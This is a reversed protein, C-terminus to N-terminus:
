KGTRVLRFGLYRANSHPKAFARNTVRMESSPHYWSGGRIVRDTGSDPGGFFTSQKWSYRAYWDWCWEYVNGSMDSLGWKNAPKQGVPHVDGDSNGNYWGVADPTNSGAFLFFEGKSSAKAAYEWEAETPLRYGSASFNCSVSNSSFEYCPELGDQESKANCYDLVEYFSIGTIPLYKDGDQYPYSTNVMAWQERTIEHPTIRFAPIWVTHPPFEDDEAFSGVDGITVSDAPISVMRLPVNVPNVDRVVEEPEDKDGVNEFRPRRAFVCYKLLIFLLIGLSIYGFIKFLHRIYPLNDKKPAAQPQYHYVPEPKPPTQLSDPPPDPIRWSEPKGDAVPEPSPPAPTQITAAQEEVQTPTATVPEEPVSVVPAPIPTEPEKVIHLPAPEAAPMQDRVPAGSRQLCSQYPLEQQEQLATILRSVSQFRLNSDLMLCRNLITFLWRPLRKGTLEPDLVPRQLSNQKQTASSQRLDLYWPLQGCLMLYALVGVSYIDSRADGKEGLYTEPSLFLVPHYENEAPEAFQWEEGSKGFGLIFLDGSADIVINEPNLYLHWIGQSHAYELANLLQLLWKIADSPSISVAPDALLGNLTYGDVYDGVIYLNGGEEFTGKIQRIHPHKLRAAIEAEAKLSNCLTSDSRFRQDLGKLTVLEGSFYDKAQYVCYYRSKHLTKLIVYAQEGPKVNM